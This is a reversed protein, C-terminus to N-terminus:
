CYRCHLVSTNIIIVIVCLAPQMCMYQVDIIFYELLLCNINEKKGDACVVISAPHGIPHDFTVICSVHFCCLCFLYTTHNNLGVPQLAVIKM